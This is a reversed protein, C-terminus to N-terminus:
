ASEFCHHDHIPLIVKYIRQRGGLEGIQKVCLQDLQTAVASMAHMGALHLSNALLNSCKQRFSIARIAWRRPLARALMLM